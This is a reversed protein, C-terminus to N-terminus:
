AQADFQQLKAQLQASVIGARADAKFKELEMRDAAKLRDREMNTGAVQTKADASAAANVRSTQQQLLLQALPMNRPTIVGAM